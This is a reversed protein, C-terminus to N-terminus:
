RSEAPMRGIGSKPLSIPSRATTHTARELFGVGLSMSSATVDRPSVDGLPSVHRDGSRPVTVTVLPSM